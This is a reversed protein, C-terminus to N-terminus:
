LQECEYAIAAPKSASETRYAAVGGFGISGAVTGALPRM